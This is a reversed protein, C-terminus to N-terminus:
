RSNSYDMSEVICAHNKLWLETGYRPYMEVDNHNHLVGCINRISCISLVEDKDYSKNLIDMWRSGDDYEVYPCFYSGDKEDVIFESWVPNKM